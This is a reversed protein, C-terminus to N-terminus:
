LKASCKRLRTKFHSTITGCDTVKYFCKLILSEYSNFKRLSYKANLRAKRCPKTKNYNQSVNLKLNQSTNTYLQM